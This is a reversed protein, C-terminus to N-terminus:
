RSAVCCPGTEKCGQSRTGRPAALSDLISLLAVLRKLPWSRSAIARPADGSAAPLTGPSPRVARPVVRLRLPAQPRRDPVRPDDPKLLQHPPDPAVRREPRELRLRHAGRELPAVGEDDQRGSAALTEAVLRRRQEA